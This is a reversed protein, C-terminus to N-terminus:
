GGVCETKLQLESPNSGESGILRQAVLLNCTFVSKETELEMMPGGRPVISLNEILETSQHSRKSGNIQLDTHSDFESSVHRPNAIGGRVM